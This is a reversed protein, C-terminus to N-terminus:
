AGAPGHPGCALIVKYGEAEALSEVTTFRQRLAAEYPLRRNAVMLLRGDERLAAAAREIFAVGLAPDAHPGAHFPPNMIIADYRARLPSDAVDHWIFHVRHDGALNIRACDLARAEAEYCDLRTIAKCHELAIKALFGYGAGLDAVRGALDPPLHKALLASGPDVRTASFIGAVTVLGGEIPRPEAEARWAALEAPPREPRACWFARAHFKSLNGGLPLVQRLAKEVSAPGLANEGAVVLTAGPGLHDFARAINGRNEARDRTLLCLGLAYQGTLRDTAAFGAAALRDHDPRFSQECVLTDRWSDLEPAPVARILFARGQPRALLGRAFPLLLTAVAATM